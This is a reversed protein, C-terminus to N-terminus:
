RGLNMNRPTVDFQVGLDPVYRDGDRATGGRTFLTGAPGRLSALASQVRLTVHVRRIRLLDADFRGPSLADPCWPGDTLMAATLETHALGGAGITALRPAQLGNSVMFTCNEGAPWAGRSLGIAPPAPGYTTWPGPSADLPVGTLRPPEADGFYRFELGVVDDVVPLDTVSGDYRMLQSTGAAVDTKLYYTGLRVESVQSGAAYRAIVPQGRHQLYAAGNVVVDVSFVDWNGGDDVLMLRDGVTFGCVQQQAPAPCNPLTEIQIDLAGPALPALLRTQKPTSPVYLFSIADPRFHVGQAQDASSGFARYPMLPAVFYNLPGAAPGSYTGAGAMVLDKRLSDVGVRVRQQVDSAEPQAQFARQAPSMLGFAAGVVILTVLSSLLVEVLTFGTERDRPTM